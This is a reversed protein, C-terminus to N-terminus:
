KLHIKTTSSLNVFKQSTYENYHKYDWGSSFGLINSFFSKEDFRIAIFGSKIVLKTERTIDDFEVDIVNSPGPYEPQLINIPAVSLDKFTYIGPQLEYTILSSIYEDLVLRIDDEVLDFETRLCSEFDQFMSMIYFDLSKLYGDNKMTKTVQERYEDIVIPGIIDDQLDTATIDSIGM